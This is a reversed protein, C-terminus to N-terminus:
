LETLVCGAAHGTGIAVDIVGELYEIDDMESYSKNIYRINGGELLVLIGSFGPCVKIM